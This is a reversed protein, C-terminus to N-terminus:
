DTAPRAAGAAGLCAWATTGSSRTVAVRAYGDVGYADAAALEERTLRFVTGPVQDAPDSSAVM